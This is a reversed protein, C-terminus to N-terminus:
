IRDDYDNDNDNKQDDYNKIITSLQNNRVESEVYKEWAINGKVIPSMKLGSLVDFNYCTKNYKKAIDFIVKAKEVLLDLVQIKEEISPREKWLSLFDNAYVVIKTFDSNDKPYLIELEFIKALAENELTKLALKFAVEDNETLFKSNLNAKRILEKFGPLFQSVHGIAKNHKSKDKIIDSINEYLINLKM